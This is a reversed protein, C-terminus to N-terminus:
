HMDKTKNQIKGYSQNKEEKTRTKTHTQKKEIKM